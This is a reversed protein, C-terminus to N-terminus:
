ENGEKYSIWDLAYAAYSTEEGVIRKSTSVNKPRISWVLQQQQRQTNNVMIRKDKGGGVGWWETSRRDRGLKRRLGVFHKAENLVAINAVYKHCDSMIELYWSIDEFIQNTYQFLDFIM